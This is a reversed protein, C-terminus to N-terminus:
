LFAAHMLLLYRQRKPLSCLAPTPRSRKRPAVKKREKRALLTEEDENVEEAEAAQSPAREKQGEKRKLQM